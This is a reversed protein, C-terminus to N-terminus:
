QNSLTHRGWMKGRLAPLSLTGGGPGTSGGPRGSGSVNAAATPVWRHMAGDGHEHDYGRTHRHGHRANSTSDEILCSGWMDLNDDDDDDGGNDGGSDSGSTSVGRHSGGVKGRESTSGGGRVGGGGVTNLRDVWEPQSAQNQKQWRLVKAAEEPDRRLDTSDGGFAGASSETASRMQSQEHCAGKGMATEEEDIQDMWRMFDDRVKSAAAAGAAGVLSGKGRGGGATSRFSKSASANTTVVSTADDDESSSSPDGGRTREATARVVKEKIRLEMRYMRSRNDPHRSVNSLVAQALKAAAGGGRRRAARLLPRLGEKCISVQLQPNVSLNVLATLSAALAPPEDQDEEAGKDEGKDASKDPGKDVRKDAGKRGVGPIRAAEAQERMRRIQNAANARRVVCVLIPVAGAHALSVKGAPPVSARAAARAGQLQLAQNDCGMLSLAAVARKGGLLAETSQAGGRACLDEYLAAAAGRLAPAAGADETLRILAEGLTITVTSTVVSTSGDGGTSLARSKLADGSSRTKNVMAAGANVPKRSHRTTVTSVTTDFSIAAILSPAAPHAASLARLLLCCLELLRDRCGHAAAAAAGTERVAGARWARGGALVRVVPRLLELKPPPPPTPPPPENPLRQQQRQQTAAPPPTPPPPPTMGPPYWQERPQDRYNPEDIVPFFEEEEDAEKHKGEQEGGCDVEVQYLDLLTLAAPPHTSLLWLASVALENM